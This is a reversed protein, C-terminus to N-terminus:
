DPMLPAPYPDDAHASWRSPGPPRHGQVLDLVHPVRPSESLFLPGRSRSWTRREALHADYLRGTAASYPVVRERRGKTTEARIRLLRYIPDVDGTALLCLEERRLAADYALALMFRNRLREGRTAKLIARWRADTPIWPLKHVTAVLGRGSNGGIGHHPTYRGRGIPNDPRM